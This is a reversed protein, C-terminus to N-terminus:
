AAAVAVPSVARCRKRLYFPLETRGSPNSGGAPQKSPLSLDASYDECSPWRLPVDDRLSIRIIIQERMTLRPVM